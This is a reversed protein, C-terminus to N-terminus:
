TLPVTVQDAAEPSAPATFAVTLTRASAERMDVTITLYGYAMTPGAELTIEGWTLSSRPSSRNASSHRCTWRRQPRVLRCRSFSDRSDPM